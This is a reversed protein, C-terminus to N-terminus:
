PRPTDSEVIHKMKALAGNFRDKRMAMEKERTADDASVSSDWVLAYVLKSTKATVPRVELTGHYLNYPTGVRVPQTYTYSLPTKAVLIEPITGNITRVSGLEGDVGSTMVCAMGLWEQLDCYRGIRAWVEEAPRSVALELELTVYTPSAVAVPALAPPAPTQGAAAGSGAVAM